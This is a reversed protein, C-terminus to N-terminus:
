SGKRIKVEQISRCIYIISQFMAQVAEDSLPGTNKATVHTIVEAEREPRYVAGEGKAIRAKLALKARKNVLKLIESDIRDIDKRIETLKKIDEMVVIM